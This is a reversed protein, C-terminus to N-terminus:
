NENYRVPFSKGILSPAICYHRVSTHSSVGQDLGVVPPAELFKLFRNKNFNKIPLVSSRLIM